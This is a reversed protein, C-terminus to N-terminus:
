RVLRDGITSPTLSPTWPEIPLRTAVLREITPNPHRDMWRWSRSAPQLFGSVPDVM